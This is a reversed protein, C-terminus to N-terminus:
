QWNKSFGVGLAIPTCHLVLGPKKNETSKLQVLAACVKRGSFSVTMSTTGFMDITDVFFEIRVKGRFAYVLRHQNQPTEDIRKFFFACDLFIFDGERVLQKIQGPTWAEQGLHIPRVGESIQDVLATYILHLRLDDGHEYWDYVSNRVYSDASKIGKPKILVGRQDILGKAVCYDFYQREKAALMDPKALQAVRRHNIYGWTIGISAISNHGTLALQGGVTAAKARNESVTKLWKRKADLLADATLNQSLDRKTHADDHHVTCVVVLNTESSNSHDKDIHHIHSGSQQCVACRYQSDYLLQFKLKQPIPKRM